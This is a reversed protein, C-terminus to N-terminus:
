AHSQAILPASRSLKASVCGSSLVANFAKEFHANFLLCGKNSPDPVIECARGCRKLNHGKRPQARNQKDIKWGGFLQRFKCIHLPDSNGCCRATLRGFPHGFMQGFIEFKQPILLHRDGMVFDAGGQVACGMNSRNTTGNIDRLIRIVATM